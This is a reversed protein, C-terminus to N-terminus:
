QEESSDIIEFPCHGDDALIFMNMAYKKMHSVYLKILPPNDVWSIAAPSLLNQVEGGRHAVFGDRGFNYILDYYPDAM